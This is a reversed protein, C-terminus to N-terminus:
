DIFSFERTEGERGGEREGERGGERGERGRERGGEGGEREGERGGRGMEKRWKDEPTARIDSILTATEKDLVVEAGVVVEAAAVVVVVTPRDDSVERLVCSILCSIDSIMHM